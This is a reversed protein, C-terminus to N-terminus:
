KRTYTDRKLIHLFLSLFVSFSLSIITAAPCMTLNSTNSPHKIPSVWDQWLISHGWEWRGKWKRLYATNRWYLYSDEIVAFQRTRRRDREKKKKKKRTEEVKGKRKIEVFTKWLHSYFELFRRTDVNNCVLRAILVDRITIHFNKSYLINRTIWKLMRCSCM